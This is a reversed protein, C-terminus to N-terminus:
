AQRGRAPQYPILAQNARVYLPHRPHGGKTTGLCYLDARALPGVLVEEARAGGGAGWACVVLGSGAFFELCQDNEPGVPDPHSRLVDPDTSRLAYLNLVVAQGCGERRTFRVVRRITADDHTADATSPNLMVWVLESGCPQLDRRLLYRYTGDQSIRASGVGLTVTFPLTM